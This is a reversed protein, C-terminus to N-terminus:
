TVAMFPGIEKFVEGKSTLTKQVKQRNLPVFETSYSEYLSKARKVNIEGSYQIFLYITTKRKFEFETEKGEIFQLYFTKKRTRSVNKSEIENSTEIIKKLIKLQAQV